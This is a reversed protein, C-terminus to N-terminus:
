TYVNEVEGEAGIRWAQIANNHMFNSPAYRAKWDSRTPQAAGTEDEARSMLRLPAGDWLWPLSFRTLARANVPASLDAEAWSQGGDASVEVKRVVGGGSWALGSIEYLGPGSLRMTASPHTIVSKVGMGFSFKLVKGDALMDTYEGSEDKTHAPAETVWLSTVWKVNMNGEFGPLLLRMPYGQEPRLREGNQYLALMGDAMIKEMPISRALSPADNGVAVAWRGAPKVGAEDMLVSLPIGTWEANSVLGHLMDCGAQMPEDLIANFFSNGACEIFHVRSVMPYRELAALDFKLPREVLGHIMLVHQAPDLEPRGGHHVEFHLGNPTISGRLHQLPTGSFSFGPALDKYIQILARKVHAEQKAPLGYERVPEGAITAWEPAAPAAQVNEILGLGAAAAGGMALGEGILRRRSLLGGGALRAASLHNAVAQTM